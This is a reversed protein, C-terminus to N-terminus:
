TPVQASRLAAIMNGVGGDIRKRLVNQFWAQEEPSGRDARELVQPFLAPSCTWAVLSGAVSIPTPSRAEWTWARWDRNNSWIDAPVRDTWIAHPGAVTPNTAVDLYRHIAERGPGPYKLLLKELDAGPWTYAALFEQQQQLPWGRVPVIHRVIGGTDFPSLECNPIPDARFALACDGFADSTRGLFCYVRSPVIALTLELQKTGTHVQAPPPAPGLRLVDVFEEITNRSYSHFWLLPTVILM